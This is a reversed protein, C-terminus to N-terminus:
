KGYIMRRLTEPIRADCHLCRRAQDIATEEDISLEIVAFSGTRSVHPPSIRKADDFGGGLYGEYPNVRDPDILKEDIEGSGGLFKDISSAAKRGAAIAEIVTAPGSVIDGGAFIGKKSAALTDDDVKITNGQGTTLGFRDTIDPTQGIASIITNFDMSFEHGKIPEPKARGSADPKGLKMKTCTMNLKGKSRSIKVPSALFLIDVGEERAIKVESAYAPM